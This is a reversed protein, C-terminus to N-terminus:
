LCLCLTAVNLSVKGPSFADQMGMNQLPQTLSLSGSDIKFKPLHLVLKEYSLNGVLQNIPDSGQQDSTVLWQQLQSISSEKNPLLIYMAIKDGRYLLEVV